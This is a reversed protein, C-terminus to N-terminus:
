YVDGDNYFHLFQSTRGSPRTQQFCEASVRQIRDFLVELPSEPMDNPLLEYEFHKQVSNLELLLYRLAPVQLRETNSFLIGIRQASTATADTDSGM